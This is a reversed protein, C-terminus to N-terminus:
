SNKIMKIMSEVWMENSNLSPVLDLKEGGMKIFEEELAEKIEIITELCDSVFAPSLVLIKKVGDAALEKVKKDTFPTLWKNTLRSQFTMSYKNVDLNLKKALIDTTITCNSKYCYRNNTIKHCNCDILCNKIKLKKIHSNPLGHYSFIIHDYEQYKFKKVNQIISNIYGQDEFFESIIKIKPIAWWKSIVKISSEIATGSSSSAYQPYLPFIILEDYKKKEMENLVKKISPNNYRMALNIEYNSDIKNQIQNKLNLSHFMLPSGKKTWLKKYEKSSSFMRIPVIIFSVLFRRLILPIDIVRWDNLFELLYRGVKFIGPNDPTGLNILLVGIKKM